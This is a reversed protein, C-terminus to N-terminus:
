HWHRYGRFRCLVAASWPRRRRCCLLECWAGAAALALLVASRAFTWPGVSSSGTGFCGCSIDLGRAWAAGIFVAFAAYLGMAVVWAGARWRWAAGGHRGCALLLVAGCTIELWPVYVGALWSLQPGTMRYHGIETVFRAPDAAKLIGAVLLLGGVVLRAARVFWTRGDGRNKRPADGGTGSAGDHRM